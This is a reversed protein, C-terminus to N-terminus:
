DGNGYQPAHPRHDEATEGHRVIFMRKHFAGGAPEQAAADEFQEDATGLWTMMRRRSSQQAGMPVKQPMAVPM